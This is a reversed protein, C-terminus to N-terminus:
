PDPILVSLHEEFCVGDNIPINVQASTILCTRIFAAAKKVSETLEVNHLNDGALISTFVDGTGPRLPLIKPNFLIDFNGQDYIANGIQDDYEIGTVVIQKAGIHM